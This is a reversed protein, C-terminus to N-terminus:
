GDGDVIEFQDASWLGHPVAPTGPRDRRRINRRQAPEEALDLQVLADPYETLMWFAIKREALWVAKEHKRWPAIADGFTALPKRRVKIEVYCLPYGESDLLFYDWDSFQRGKIVRVAKPDIGRLDMWRRLVSQEQSEGFTVESQRSM